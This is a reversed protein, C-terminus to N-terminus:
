QTSTSGPSTRSLSDQVSEIMGSLHQHVQRMGLLFEQDKQDAAICDAIERALLMKITEREPHITVMAATMARLATLQGYLNSILKREESM